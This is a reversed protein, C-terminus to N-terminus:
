GRLEDCLHACVGLTCFAPSKMRFRKVPKIHSLPGFSHDTIM